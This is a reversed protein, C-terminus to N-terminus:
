EGKGPKFKRGPPRKGFPKKNGVFKAFTGAPKGSSGESSRKKGAFGGPKGGSKGAYGGAKDGFKPKGAFKPKDAGGQFKRPPFDGEPRRRDGEARAPRDSSYPRAPRDRPADFKRYVPKPRDGGFGGERPADSPRDRKV